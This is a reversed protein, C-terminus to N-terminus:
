AESVSGTPQLEVEFQTLGKVKGSRQYSTIITEVASSKNNGYTYKLTRTGGSTGACGLDNFIAHPGTTVTDDYAGKIKIKDVAAVGISAHTEASASFGTTEETDMKKIMADADTIYASMDQLAGSSNDFEIKFDASSYKAM